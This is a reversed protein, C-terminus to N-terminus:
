LVSKSLVTFLSSFKNEFLSSKTLWLDRVAALAAFETTLPDPINSMAEPVVTIIVTLAFSELPADIFVPPSSKTTLIDFVQDFYM